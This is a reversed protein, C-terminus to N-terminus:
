CILQMVEEQKLISVSFANVGHYYRQEKNAYGIKAILLDGVVADSFDGAFDHIIIRESFKIEDSDDQFMVPSEVRLMVKHTQLWLNRWHRERTIKEVVVPVDQYTRRGGNYNITPLRLM